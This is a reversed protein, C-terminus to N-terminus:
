ERGAPYAPKKKICIINNYVQIGSMQPHLKTTFRSRGLTSIPTRNEEDAGHRIDVTLIVTKM